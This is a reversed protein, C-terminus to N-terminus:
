APVARIRASSGVTKPRTFVISTQLLLSHRVSESTKQLWRSGKVSGNVSREGRLVLKMISRNRGREANPYRVAAERGSQHGGPEM